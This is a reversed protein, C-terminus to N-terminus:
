LSRCVFFLKDKEPLKSLDVKGIYQVVSDIGKLKEMAAAEAEFETVAQRLPKLKNADGQSPVCASNVKVVCPRRPNSCSAWYVKGYVGGLGTELRVMRVAIHTDVTQM